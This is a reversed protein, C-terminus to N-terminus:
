VAYGIYCETCRLSVSDFNKCAPDAVICRNKNNFYAGQSCRVCVNQKFEACNPDIDGADQIM